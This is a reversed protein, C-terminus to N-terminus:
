ARCTCLLARVDHIEVLIKEERYKRKVFGERTVTKAHPASIRPQLIFDPLSSELELLGACLCLCAACALVRGAM